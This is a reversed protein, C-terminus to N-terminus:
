DKVNNIIIGLACSKVKIVTRIQMGLNPVFVLNDGNKPLLKWKNKRIKVWNVVCIKGFNQPSM